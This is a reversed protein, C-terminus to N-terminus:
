TQYEFSRHEAPLDALPVFNADHATLYATRELDHRVYEKTPKFTMPEPLGNPPLFEAPDRGENNKLAECALRLHEIEMGLHLEWIAKIRQDSETQMCSWYLWCENYEHLVLNTLWSLSPDLISEYHSVLDSSCVDSSWDSIRM